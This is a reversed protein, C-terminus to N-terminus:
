VFELLKKKTLYSPPRRRTQPCASLSKLLHVVLLDTTEVSLCYILFVKGVPVLIPLSQLLQATPSAGYKRSAINFLTEEYTDKCVLRYVTVDKEQGIRHCRAMAQLDNQVWLIPKRAPKM